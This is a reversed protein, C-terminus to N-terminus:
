RMLLNPLWMILGPVYTMVALVLVLVAMYPWSERMFEDIRVKAIRAMAFMIVGLPPTLTGIMTNFALVVGFQVPDMGFKTMLPLLVPTMIIIIASGEVLCGMILLLINVAAFILLPSSAFPQMLELLKAPGQEWAIVWGFPSSAAIIFSVAGTTLASEVLVKPLKSVTLEKYVFFGILLAYFAAVAASETPTMAGSLIGGVILLPMILAPLSTVFSRGIRSLSTKPSFPLNYKLAFWYTLAMLVLGTFIGPIVGGLFLKGVSVGAISGYIVMPISPPIIPGIVAASGVVAAAFAPRYGYERMMPILVQGTAAADALGSGSVGAMFINTVISIHALGGRVSGVISEAFHILRKTIGGANMLNGALVFFPLALLPFSDVGGVLRQPLAELPIGGKVLLAAVAGLAMGYAIPTNIATLIVFVVVMVTLM